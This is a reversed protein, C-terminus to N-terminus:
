TLHGRGSETTHTTTRPIYTETRTNDEQAGLQLQLKYISVGNHVYCKEGSGPWLQSMMIM